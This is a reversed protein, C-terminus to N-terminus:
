SDWDLEVDGFETEIFAFLEAVTQEVASEAATDVSLVFQNERVEVEWETDATDSSFEDLRELDPPLEPTYEFQARDSRITVHTTGDFGQMLKELGYQLGDNETVVVDAVEFEFEPEPSSINNNMSQIAGVDADFEDALDKKAGMPMEEQGYGTAYATEGVLRRDIKRERELETDTADWRWKLVGVCVSLFAFLAAAGSFVLQPSPSITM